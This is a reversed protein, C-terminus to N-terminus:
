FFFHLDLQRRCTVLVFLLLIAFITSFQLVFPRLRSPLGEFLSSPSVSVHRDLCSQHLIIIIMIIIMIIVFKVNDCREKEMM